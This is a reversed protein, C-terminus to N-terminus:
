ESIGSPKLEALSGLVKQFEAPTSFWYDSRWQQEVVRKLSARRGTGSSLCRTRSNDFDYFPICPSNGIGRRVLEDVPLLAFLLRAAGIESGNSPTLSLSCERNPSNTVSIEPTNETKLKNLNQNTNQSQTFKGDM